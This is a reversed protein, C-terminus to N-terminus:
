TIIAVFTHIAILKELDIRSHIAKKVHSTTTIHQCTGASASEIVMCNLLLYLARGQRRMYPPIVM